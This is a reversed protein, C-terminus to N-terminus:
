IWNKFFRFLTTEQFFCHICKTLTLCSFCRTHVLQFFLKHFHRWDKQTFPLNYQSCVTFIILFTCNLATITFFTPSLQSYAFAPLQFSHFLGSLFNCTFRLRFLLSCIFSFCSIFPRLPYSFWVWFLVIATNEVERYSNSYLHVQSSFAESLSNLRWLFFFVKEFM